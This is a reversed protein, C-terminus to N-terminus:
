FDIAFDRHVKYAYIMKKIQSRCLVFNSKHFINNLRFYKCSFHMLFYFRFCQYVTICETVKLIITNKEGKLNFNAKLFYKEVCFYRSVKRRIKLSSELRLLKVSALMIILSFKYSFLRKERKSLHIM